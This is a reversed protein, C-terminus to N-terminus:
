QVREKIFRNAYDALGKLPLIASCIGAAAVAGPMGWVVSSDEDQAILTGGANVVDQGGKCGDNGMGTLIVAFVNPGFVTVASRYMPDVAPRCFNEPPEQNLKLARQPGKQVVTMHYDGPALYINNKELVMGNEGERCSWPTQKTIHDALITTFTAPMHQTIIIPIGINSDLNNLFEMLAQPGGTSSGIALIEPKGHGPEHLSIDGDKVPAQATKAQQPQTSKASAGQASQGRGSAQGLAKVKNILERSFEDAGALSTTTPKPIYDAAGAEMAQISIEANRQTLTSAMLVKVEPKEKLLLPLATIGDMVPMEIDLVIVDIEHRPLTKVAIEGNAVSAVIEIGPDKELMRTELGRVVASDDVIMVRVPNAGIKRESKTTTTAM